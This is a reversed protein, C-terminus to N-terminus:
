NLSSLATRRNFEAVNRIFDFNKIDLDDSDSDEDVNDDEDDEREEM